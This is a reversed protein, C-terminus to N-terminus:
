LSPAPFDVTLTGSGFHRPVEISVLAQLVPRLDVKNSPRTRLAPYAAPPIRLFPIVTEVPRLDSYHHPYAHALARLHPVEGSSANALLRRALVERQPTARDM